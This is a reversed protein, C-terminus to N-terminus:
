DDDTSSALKDLRVEVKARGRLMDFVAATEAQGYLDAAQDRYARLREEIKADDPDEVETVKFVMYGSSGQPVGAFGPLANPDIGFIAKAAEAGLAAAGARSTKQPEGFGEATAGAQRAAELAQEGAERALRAAELAKVRAAVEAEVEEYAPMRAPHHEVVRAALLSSNGIEIAETNQHQSLSQPAFIAALVAPRNLPSAPDDTGNRRVSDVTRVELGLQEAALALSDAQEYVSNSFEEAAEGFRLRAQQERLDQTIEDRVEEFPRTKAERIGGLRVLHWGFESEVPGAVEGVKGLGFAADAVEAIMDDHRFWGLDGGSERSADDDSSERAVADFAKGGDIETKLAEAKERAAASGAEGISVLIHSAEREEPAGFRSKNQEYYERVAKPDLEIRTAVDEPRLVVYEVRASEPIEFERPNEEFYKRFETEGSETRAVYDEARFARMSVTRVQENARLLREVMPKPPLASLGISEPLARIALERRQEYEFGAESMGRAALLNTYRERDFRGNEDTLGPVRAILRRLEDDTVSINEERAAWFLTHRVILGELIERQAAPSQLMAPDFSDGLSERLRDMQERQAQEFEQMTIPTGDVSAISDGTTMRDYAPLGFFAFAPFILIVLILQLVRQHSRISEFM